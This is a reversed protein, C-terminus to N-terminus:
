LQPHALNVSSVSRYIWERQGSSRASLLVLHEKQGEGDNSVYLVRLVCNAILTSASHVNSWFRLMMLSQLIDGGAEGRLVTISGIRSRALMRSKGITLECFVAVQALKVQGPVGEPVLLLVPSPM